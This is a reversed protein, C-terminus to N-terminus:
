NSDANSLPTFTLILEIELTQDRLSIRFSSLGGKQCNNFMNTERPKIDAGVNKKDKQIM